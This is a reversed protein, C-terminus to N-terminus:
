ENITLMEMNEDLDSNSDGLTIETIRTTLDDIDDCVCIDKLFTILNDFYSSSIFRYLNYRDNVSIWKRIEEIMNNDNMMIEIGDCEMSFYGKRWKVNNAEVGDIILDHHNFFSNKYIQNVTDNIKDIPCKFLENKLHHETLARHIRTELTVYHV